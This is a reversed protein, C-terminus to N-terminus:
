EIELRLPEPGVIEVVDGHLLDCAPGIFHGGVRVQVDVRRLLRPGSGAFSLSLGEAEPFLQPLAIPEVGVLARLPRDLGSVGEFTVASATAAYRVPVTGGLGLEGSGRLVFAAELRAGAIRVGGRSGADEISIGDPGARLLAHRRSVAPDRLPVEASRDRGLTAPLGGIRIWPGGLARLTVARGSVLRAEIRAAAALATSVEAVRSQAHLARLAARREGGSLLEDFRRMVEVDERRDSIRREDRELAAEMRELDGLAGWAEAARPDDGLEEYSRAARRQDGGEALLLAAREFARRELEGLPPRSTHALLAEAAALRLTRLEDALAARSKAGATKALAAQVLRTAADLDLLAVQSLGGGDSMASFLDTLIEWSQERVLRGVLGVLDRGGLITLEPDLV